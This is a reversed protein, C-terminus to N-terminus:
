PHVPQFPTSWSRVPEQCCKVIANTKGMVNLPKDIGGHLEKTMKKIKVSFGSNSTLIGSLDTLKFKFSLCLLTALCGASSLPGAMFYDQMYGATFGCCTM